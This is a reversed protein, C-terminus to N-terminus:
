RDFTIRRRGSVEIFARTEAKRYLCTLSAYKRSIPTL